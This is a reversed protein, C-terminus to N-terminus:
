RCRDPRGRYSSSQGAAKRRGAAEGSEQLGKWFAAQWYSAQWFWSRFFSAGSISANSSEGVRERFVDATVAAHRRDPCPVTDAGVNGEPFYSRDFYRDPFYRSPFM